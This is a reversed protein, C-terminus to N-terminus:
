FQLLLVFVDSFVVKLQSILMYFLQIDLNNILNNIDFIDFM